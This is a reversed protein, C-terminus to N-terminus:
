DGWEFDDGNGSPDSGGNGGIGISGTGTDGLSSQCLIDASCIFLMEVEPRVYDAKFM